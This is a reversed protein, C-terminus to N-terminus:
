EAPERGKRTKDKNKSPPELGLAKFLAAGGPGYGALDFTLNSRAAIVAQLESERLHDLDAHPVWRDFLSLALARLRALWARRSENLLSRLTPEDDVAEEVKTALRDLIAHFPTESEQWFSERAVQALGGDRDRLGPLAERLRRVLHHEAERAAAVLQKVLLDFVEAAPGSVLHLPMESEVFDRAKMKDMDWGVALLRARRSRRYKFRMRAQAVAQAPRRLQSDDEQVLGVYHRYGIRGPQGHLPLWEAAGPKQRYHPSLPHLFGSYNTGSPRTRYAKVVLDDVLGTLDCPRRESNEEFILRIRRPMGWYAQMAHTDDPTTTEGQASTRTPVLWPLLRELAPLAEEEPDELGPAVTNLWLSHWLSPREEPTAGPLVLTTLPGGGRLSTRHGKGGSPAYSQLAFLAMAAAPRGLAEVGGRHVFHDLNKRQTNGGPAEVLLQGVLVPEGELEERDQMFRGAPGDLLFAERLPAFAADLVDPSPPSEYWSEWDDGTHQACATALLGIVFERSAADFDARGWDFGIIARAPDALGETVQAPRIWRRDGDASVVPLWPENLLCFGKAELADPSSTMGAGSDVRTM